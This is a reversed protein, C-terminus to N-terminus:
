RTGATSRRLKRDPPAREAPKRAAQSSFESLRGPEQHVTISPEQRQQTQREIRGFRPPMGCGTAIGKRRGEFHDVIMRRNQVGRCNRDATQRHFEIIISLVFPPDSAQQRANPPRNRLRCSITGDSSQVFGIKARILYPTPDSSLFREFFPSRQLRVPRGCLGIAFDSSVQRVQQTAVFRRQQFPLQMFQPASESGEDIPPIGPVIPLHIGPLPTKIWEVVFRRLRNLPPHGLDPIREAPGQRFQGQEAMLFQKILNSLRRPDPVRQEQAKGHFRLILPLFLLFTPLSPRAPTRAALSGAPIPTATTTVAGAVSRASTTRVRANITTWPVRATTIDARAFTAAAITTTTLLLQRAKSSKMFDRGLMRRNIASPMCAAVTSGPLGQWVGFM